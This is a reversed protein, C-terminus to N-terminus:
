LKKLYFSKSIIFTFYTLISHIKKNAANNGNEPQHSPIFTCLWETISRKLRYLVIVPAIFLLLSSSFESVDDQFISPRFLSFILRFILLIFLTLHFWIFYGGVINLFVSSLYDVSKQGISQQESQDLKPIEEYNNNKLDNTHKKYKMMERLIRKVFIIMTFIASILIEKRFSLSDIDLYCFKRDISYLYFLEGIDFFYKLCFLIFSMSSTGMIFQFTFSCTLYCLLVFAVTFVCMAVTTYRFNKDSQYIRDPLKRVYLCFKNFLREIKSNINSINNSPPKVSENITITSLESNNSNTIDSQSSSNSVFRIFLEM